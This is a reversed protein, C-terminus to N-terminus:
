NTSPVEYVHWVISKNPVIATGIYFCGAPVVHGTGFVQFHRTVMADSRIPLQVEYWVSVWRADPSQCGVHIIRADQPLDFPVAKDNVPVSIKHVTLNM